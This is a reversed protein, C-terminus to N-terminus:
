TTFDFLDMVEVKLAKAIRFFSYFKVNGIANEIRSLDSDPIGMALDVDVQILKKDKRLILIKRGVLEKEKKFRNLFKKKKKTKAIPNKDEYDFLSILEIGFGEALKVITFFELNKLGNEIRSIETRNIESRESLDKQTLGLQNRIKVVRKGFLSCESSFNEQIDM